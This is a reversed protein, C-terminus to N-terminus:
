SRKMPIEPGLPNGDPSPPPQMLLRASTGSGTLRAGTPLGGARDEPWTFRVAGGGEWRGDVSVPERGIMGVFSASGDEKISLTARDASFREKLASRFQDLEASTPARGPGKSAYEVVAEVAGDVDLVWTGALPNGERSCGVLMSAATLIAGLLWVLGTHGVGSASQRRANVCGM